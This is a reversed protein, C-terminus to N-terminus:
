KRMTARALARINEENREPKGAPPVYLTSISIFEAKPLDRLLVREVLPRSTPFEPAHYLFVEHDPAYFRKLYDTLVELRPRVGTHPPNWNYEGLVSVQWLLLGACPDFNYHYYLFHTAEYSQLGARGIDIGLDAFLSDETSIAPLMRARKGMARARRISEWAPYTLVGPHGYVAVCVDGHTELEGLIRAIITEYIEIRSKGAQYLHGLPQAAPNLKRICAESVADGVLYLVHASKEIALRTEITMHLGARMGTGVVTLGKGSWVGAPETESARATIGALVADQALDRELDIPEFHVSEAEHAGTVEPVDASAEPGEDPEEPEAPEEPRPDYMEMMNLSPFTASSGVARAADVSAEPGDDPEEPEAPEEPSYMEMMKLSPFESSSGKVEPEKACAEPGDNPEEPEAPEEPRPDYMEMMTLSPFAASSSVARPLNASAEPGDNPEEPEAPEEPRPDYMEMMTLSPFAASSSVARPLNASAEPGDNPEEPEAPEEPSYMEMMTSPSGPIRQTRKRQNEAEAAVAERLGVPDGSLLLLQDTESLGRARLVAQPATRFASMFETDTALDALFELLKMLKDERPLLIIIQM